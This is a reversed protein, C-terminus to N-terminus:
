ISAAAIVATIGAVAIGTLATIHAEAIDATDVILALSAASARFLSGAPSHARAAKFSDAPHERAPSRNHEEAARAPSRNHDEAVHRRFGGGSSGRSSSSSRGGSAGGRHQALAVGQNAVMLAGVLITPLVQRISISVPKM